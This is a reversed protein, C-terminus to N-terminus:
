AVDQTRRKRLGFAPRRRQAPQVRADQTLGLPALLGGPRLVPRHVIAAALLAKRDMRWEVAQPLWPLRHRLLDSAAPGREGQPRMLVARARPLPAGDLLRISRGLLDADARLVLVVADFAAGLSPGLPPAAPAAHMPAGLDVVVMTVPLGDLAPATGALVQPWQAIPREFGAVLQLLRRDPVTVAAGLLSSASVGTPGWVSSLRVPPEIALIDALTGCDSDADLLLTPQTAAAEWAIAAAVHSSGQGAATSLVAVRLPM